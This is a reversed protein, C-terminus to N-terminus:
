SLLPLLFVLLPPLASWVAALALGPLTVFALLLLLLLLLAADACMLLPLVAAPAVTALGFGEAAAAAAAAAAPATAAAKVSEAEGVNDAVALDKLFASDAVDFVLPAGARREEIADGSEAGAERNGSELM